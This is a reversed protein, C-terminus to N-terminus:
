EEMSDLPNELILVLYAQVKFGEGRIRLGRIGSNGRIQRNLIELTVIFLLLSLPCGQRM